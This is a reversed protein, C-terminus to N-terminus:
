GARAAERTMTVFVDELSPTIPRAEIRSRLESPLRALLADLDLDPGLLLHVSEGFITAERVGPLDRAARFVQTVRDTALEARTCGEPTVGPLSKLETPTGNVLLRSLHLYALHDCREAEDMYHTTVFLTKGTAALEFLLNWLARRAVPDIGATPEDLFLVEPDHLLACAIALRQKWGGSLTGAMRREYGGMGTRALVEERRSRLARGHLGYAMGFFNLNEVGTLDEYLSFHQSVYGIQRRIELPHRTVELGLVEARGESPKLLGCLMRIITTKGSGNPGLLGFIAGERVTLDVHDVAVLRKFRRTLGETRIAPTTM